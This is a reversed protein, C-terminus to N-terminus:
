LEDLPSKIKLLDTNAVKTYISTTELNSHGLLKQIYRIDTGSELLHTAFSHRLMHPTVKKNLKKSSKELIKQITKQSYKKTRSSEFLYKTKFETKCIYDFLDKSLKESLITIRDKKGKGQSILITKRSPDIDERKLNILENLRIGSSYLMQLILKHKQNITENFIIKIENKSLVKPLTKKKKPYPIDEIVFNKRLVNKILFDLSAKVLRITSVDYKKDYLNQFYEKVAMEDVKQSSEDLYELFKKSNYVYSKVTQLSFGRFVLKQKLNELAKEKRKSM